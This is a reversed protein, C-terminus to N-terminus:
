RCPLGRSASPTTDLFMERMIDVHAIGIVRGAADRVLWGKDSTNALYNKLEALDFTAEGHYMAVDGAVLSAKIPQPPAIKSADASTHELLPKQVEPLSETGRDDGESGLHASMERM